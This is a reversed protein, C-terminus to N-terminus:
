IRSGIYWISGMFGIVVRHWGKFQFGFGFREEMVLEFGIGCGLVFM